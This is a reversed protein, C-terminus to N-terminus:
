EHVEEAFYSRLSNSAAQPLEVFVRRGDLPDARRIM